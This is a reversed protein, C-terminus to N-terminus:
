CPATLDYLSLLHRIAPQSLYTLKQREGYQWCTWVSRDFALFPAACTFIFVFCEDGVASLLVCLRVNHWSCNKKKLHFVFKFETMIEDCQEIGLKRIHFVFTSLKLLERKWTLATFLPLLWVRLCILGPKVVTFFTTVKKQPAYQSGNTCDCNNYLYM